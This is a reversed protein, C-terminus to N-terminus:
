AGNGGKPTAKAADARHVGLNRLLRATLVVVAVLFVFAASGELKTFSVAIVCFCATLFYLALVAGRDSGEAELLRHHMHQRDADFIPQGARWRRLISLATDLLPVALALLPVLFAMISAKRYGGVYGELAVLSLSYGIFLAGTDGLFIRAPPFNFPLFGLLAGVLTVGLIMGVPQDAQACIIALTAAIIAGVGTSLGDLGDILNMANSVAVIWFTTIMAAFWFPFDFVEGTLPERFSEIVYGYRVALLGAGVQFALKAWPSLTWRDDLVGAALVAFGGVLFGEIQAIRVYDEGLAIVAAALGVACGLAVALGGLLPMDERRSVKRENPRDIAGIQRALLSVVPTSMAAVACAVVFPLILQFPNM